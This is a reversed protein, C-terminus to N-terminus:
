LFSEHNNHVIKKSYMVPNAMNNDLKQGIKMANFQEDTLINKKGNFTAGDEFMGYTIARRTKNTFNCGAGHITLGNHFSIDGANMEIAICEYEDSRFEPYNNDFMENMNKGILITKFPDDKMAMTKHSGSLMYMCGNMQTVDDLAIWASIAHKSDFTWFPVDCHFSTPNGYGEKYLAQDHHM